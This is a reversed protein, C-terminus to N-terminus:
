CSRTTPRPSHSRGSGHSPAHRDRTGGTAGRRGRPSRARAARGAIRAVWWRVRPPMCIAGLSARTAWFRGNRSTIAVRQIALTPAVSSGNASARPMMRSGVRRAARANDSANRRTASPRTISSGRIEAIPASSSAGSASPPQSSRAGAISGIRRSANSLPSTSFAPRCNPVAGVSSWAQGSACASASSISSASRASHSRACVRGSAASPNACCQCSVSRNRCITVAAHGCHSASFPSPLGAARCIASSRAWALAHAWSSAAGGIQAAPKVVALGATAASSRAIAPMGCPCTTNCPTSSCSASASQSASGSLWGCAPSARNSSRIPARRPSRACQFGAASATLQGAPRTHVSDRASSGSCASPSQSSSRPGDSTSPM